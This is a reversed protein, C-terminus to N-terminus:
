DRDILLTLLQIDPGTIGYSRLAPSHFSLAESVDGREAQRLHSVALPIDHCAFAALGLVLHTSFLESEVGQCNEGLMDIYKPAEDARGTLVLCLAAGQYGDPSSPDAFTIGLFSNLADHLRHLYIQCQGRLSLLKASLPKLHEADILAGLCNAYESKEFYWKALTQKTWSDTGDLMDARQLTQIADSMDCRKQCLALKRLTKVDSPDAYSMEYYIFYAAMWCDYNVFIRGLTDAVDPNALVMLPETNLDWDDVQFLVTKGFREPDIVFARYLDKVFSDVMDVLPSSDEKPHMDNWRRREEEFTQCLGEANPLKMSGLISLTSYKDSDCMTMKSVAQVLRSQYAPEVSMIADAVVSSNVEFPRFWHIDSSFFPSRKMARHTAFNVDAGDEQWKALQSFKDIVSKNNDSGFIAELDETNVKTTIEDKRDMITKALRTIEQAMDNAFFNEIVPTLNTKALSSFTAVALRSFERNDKLAQALLVLLESDEGWRSPNSIVSAVVAVTARALSMGSLARDGLAKVFRRALHTNHRCILNHALVSVVYARDADPIDADCVIYDFVVAVDDVTLRQLDLSTCLVYLSDLSCAATLADQKYIAVLSPIDARNMNHLAEHRQRCNPQGPDIRISYELADAVDHLRMKLSCLVKARQPDDGGSAMFDLLLNLDKCIVDLQDNFPKLSDGKALERMRDIAFPLIGNSILAHISRFDISIDSPKDPM